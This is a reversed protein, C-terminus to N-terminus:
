TREVSECASEESEKKLSLLAFLFAVLSILGIVAFDIGFPLINRGNGFTGLYSALSM